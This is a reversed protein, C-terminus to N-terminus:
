KKYVKVKPYKGWKGKKLIGTKASYYQVVSTSNATGLQIAYPIDKGFLLASVFGSGFADGAGTREVIPSKPIGAYYVDKGCSVMVGEPGKTMAVIGDTTDRLQNFVIEDKSNKKLGLLIEAEEKNMKLFDIKKLVPFLKEIGMKLEKSGPDLAVKINNKKAYNVIKKLLSLNGALSTIYFWKAKLKSTDIESWKIDASVGRRVLISRAGSPTTIIISYGTEPKQDKQLLSLSVRHKKLEEKLSRAFTDSGIRAICATKFGQCAFTAAANTAGGGTSLIVEDVENKSGLAFCINEKQPTFNKSKLFVDRTAAGITIVDYM